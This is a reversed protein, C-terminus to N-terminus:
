TTQGARDCRRRKQCLRTIRPEAHTSLSRVESGNFIVCRGTAVPATAVDTACLFKSLQHRAVTQRKADERARELDGLSEVSRLPRLDTYNEARHFQALHKADRQDTKIAIARKSRSLSPAVVQCDIAETSLRRQIGYGTPGAEYCVKLDAGQKQLLRLAKVLRLEDYPITKWLSAAQRGEEALAIVITDKHVDLGVYRVTTTM